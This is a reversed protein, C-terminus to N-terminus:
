AFLADIDDQSSADEDELSPGNLLGKDGTRDKHDVAEVGDFSDMGGWIDIMKETRDSIFRLVNVVKTIRQGTIDQFNCAEYVKVIEDQMNNATVGADGTLTEALTNAHNEVAEISELIQNTAAETGQVVADLEDAPRAGTDFGVNSLSAIEKKTETIASYIMDLERKLKLAEQIEKGFGPSDAPAESSTEQEPQNLPVVNSDASLTVPAFATGAPVTHGSTIQNRLFSLEEMVQDKWNDGSRTVKKRKAYPNNQLTQFKFTKTM